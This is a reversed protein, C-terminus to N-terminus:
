QLVLAVEGRLRQRFWVVQEARQRQLQLQVHGVGHALTAVASGQGQGGRAQQPEGSAALERAVLAQLHSERDILLQKSPVDAAGVRRGFAALPTCSNSTQLDGATAPRARSPAAPRSNWTFKAAGLKSPPVIRRGPSLQLNAHGDRIFSPLPPVEQPRAACEARQQAMSLWSAWSRAGNMVVLALLTCLPHHAVLLGVAPHSVELALPACLSHHADLCGVAPHVVVLAFPPRLSQHAGPARWRRFPHATPGALHHVALALLARLTNNARLLRTAVMHEVELALRARLSPHTVLPRIAPHIVILALPARLYEHAVLLGISQPEGEHLVEIM